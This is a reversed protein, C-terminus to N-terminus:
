TRTCAEEVAITMPASAREPAWLRQDAVGSLLEQYAHELQQRSCALRGKLDISSEFTEKGLTQLGM